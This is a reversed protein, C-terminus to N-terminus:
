YLLVLQHFRINGQWSVLKDNTAITKYAWYHLINKSVLVYCNKWRFM